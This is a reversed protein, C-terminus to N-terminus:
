KGQENDWRVSTLVIEAIDIPSMSKNTVFETVGEFDVGDTTGAYSIEYREENKTVDASLDFGTEDDYINVTVM